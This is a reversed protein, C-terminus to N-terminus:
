LRGGVWLVLLVVLSLAAALLLLSSNVLVFLLFPTTERHGGALGRLARYTRGHHLEPIAGLRDVPLGFRRLARELDPDAAQGTVVIADAPFTRLADEVAQIPDPDASEGDVAARDALAWETEFARVEADYRAQDEAGSLWDLPRVVLPTVVHVRRITPADALEVVEDPPVDGVVLLLVNEPTTVTSVLTPRTCALPM